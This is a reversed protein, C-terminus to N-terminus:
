VIKKKKLYICKFIDDAFHSSNQQSRNTDFLPDGGMFYDILIFIIEDLLTNKVLTM